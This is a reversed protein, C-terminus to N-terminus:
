ASAPDTYFPAVPAAADADRPPVAWSASPGEAGPALEAETAMRARLGTGPAWWVVISPVLCSPGAGACLVVACTPTVAHLESQYFASVADAASREVLRGDRWPPDRAPALTGIETKRDVLTRDAHHARAIARDPEVILVM